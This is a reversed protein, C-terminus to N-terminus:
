LRWHRSLKGPTEEFKGNKEVFRGTIEEFKGTTDKFKSPIEEFQGTTGTRIPEELKVSTQELRDSVKATTKLFKGTAWQWLAFTQAALTKKLDQHPSGVSLIMLLCISLNICNLPFLFQVSDLICTDFLCVFHMSDMLCFHYVLTKFGNM